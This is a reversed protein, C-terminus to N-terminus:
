SYSNALLTQIASFMGDLEDGIAFVAIMIFVSIGALILGYEVATVASGDDALRRAASKTRRWSRALFTQLNPM